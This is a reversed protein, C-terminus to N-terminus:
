KLRKTLDFEKDYPFVIPKYASKTKHENLHNMLTNKSDVKNSSFLYSFLITIIALLSLFFLTKKNIYDTPCYDDKKRITIREKASSEGIDIGLYKAYLKKYGAAYVKGPIKEIEDNEIALLYEHKIRLIKSIDHTDLGKKLRAEKLISTM